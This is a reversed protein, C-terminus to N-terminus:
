IKWSTIRWILLDLRVFIIDNYFYVYSIFDKSQLKKKSYFDFSSKRISYIRRLENLKESFKDVKEVDVYIFEKFSEIM